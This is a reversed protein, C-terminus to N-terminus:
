KVPKAWRDLSGRLTALYSTYFERFVEERYSELSRGRWEFKHHTFLRHVAPVTFLSGALVRREITVLRTMVMKNNLM